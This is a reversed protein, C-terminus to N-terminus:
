SVFIAPTTLHNLGRNTTGINTPELGMMRGMFLVKMKQLNKKNHTLQSLFKVFCHRKGEKAPFKNGHLIAERHTM